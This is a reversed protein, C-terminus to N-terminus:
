EDAGENVEAMSELKSALVRYDTAAEIQASRASELTLFAELSEAEAKEGAVLRTRENKFQEQKERVDLDLMRVKEKM